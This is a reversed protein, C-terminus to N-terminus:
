FPQVKLAFPVDPAIWRKGLKDAVLAEGANDARARKGALMEVRRVDGLLFPAHGGRPPAQLFEGQEPQRDNIVRKLVLASLTPASRTDHLLTFTGDSGTIISNGRGM